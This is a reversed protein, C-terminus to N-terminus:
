TSALDRWVSQLCSCFLAGAVWRWVASWFSGKLASLLIQQKAIEM